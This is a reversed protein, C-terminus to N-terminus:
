ILKGIITEGGKVKDGLDVEIQVSEPFIIDTRSGFMIFGLRDGKLMKLDKEAYCRIRRAIIGAIQHVRYTINMGRFLIDTKENEDSAKHDFAALFKGPIHKVDKVTSTIPVRNVHVNFVSLFISIRNAGEGIESDNVQDIRIIKGDAPAVISSKDLPISRVPDRFFNCSFLFLLGFFTYCVLLRESDYYSGIMGTTFTTIFLIILIIRGEPALM